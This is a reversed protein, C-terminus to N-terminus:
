MDADKGYPCTVDIIGGDEVKWDFETGELAHRNAGKLRSIVEALETYVLGIKGPIVQPDGTSNYPM